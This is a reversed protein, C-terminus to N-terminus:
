VVSTTTGPQEDDAGIAIILNGAGLAGIRDRAPRLLRSRRRRLTRYWRRSAPLSVTKPPQPLSRMTAPSPAAVVAVQAIGPAIGNAIRAGQGADDDIEHGWRAWPVSIPLSVIKLMSVTIAPRPASVTVPSPAALPNLPPLPSSPSTPPAPLSVSSRCAPLSVM